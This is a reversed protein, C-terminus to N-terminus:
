RGRRSLYKTKERRKKIAKERQESKYNVSEFNIDKARAQKLLETEFKFKEYEKCIAHCAATRKECNFCPNNIRTM